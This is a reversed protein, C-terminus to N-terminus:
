LVFTGFKTVLNAMLTPLLIGQFPRWNTRRTQAFVLIDVPHNIGATRSVTTPALIHPMPTCLIVGVSEIQAVFVTRKQSLIFDTKSLTDHDGGRVIKM